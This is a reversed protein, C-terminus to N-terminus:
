RENCVHKKLRSITTKQNHENSLLLEDNNQCDLLATASYYTNWKATLSGHKIKTM